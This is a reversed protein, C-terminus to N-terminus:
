GRSAARARIRERARVRTREDCALAADVSEILGPMPDALCSEILPAIGV